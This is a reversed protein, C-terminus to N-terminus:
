LNPLTKFRKFKVDEIKEEMSIQSKIMFNECSEEVHIPEM